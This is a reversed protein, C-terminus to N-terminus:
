ALKLSFFCAVPAAYAYEAPIMYPKPRLSTANHGTKYQHTDYKQNNVTYAAPMTIDPGDSIDALFDSPKVRIASDPRVPSATLYVSFTFEVFGPGASNGARSKVLIPYFFLGRGPVPGTFM